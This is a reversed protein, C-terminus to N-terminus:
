NFFNFEIKIFVGNLFYNNQHIIKSNKFNLKKSKYLMKVLSVHDYHCLDYFILANNLDKPFFAYNFAKIISTLFDPDEEINEQYNKLYNNLIYNAIENHHSKVAENFSDVYNHDPPVIKNEEFFHIMEPNRGHVAHIWLSGSLEAKNFFLFKFIQISGFFAAYEILSSKNKNLLSNTEFISPQIQSSFSMNKQNFYSIFEDISDNRILQCIYNDNEGLKRKENFEETEKKQELDSSDKVDNFFYPMYEKKTFVNTVSQDINIIKREILFLLVRKNSKFINFLEENSFENKMENEFHLLIQEIKSFFNHHRNHNNSIIILLHFLARLEDKQKSIKNDNLHSFFIQHEEETNDEQDIYNILNNLIEKKNEIYEKIDM